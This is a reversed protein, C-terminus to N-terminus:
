RSLNVTRRGFRLSDISLSGPGIMALVTATLALTVAAVPVPTSQSLAASLALVASITAVTRTYFGVCIATSLLDWGLMPGSLHASFDGFPPNVLAFVVAARLMLLAAGTIGSPFVLFNHKM